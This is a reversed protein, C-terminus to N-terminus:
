SFCLHFVHYQCRSELSILLSNVTGKGINGCVIVVTCDEDILSRCVQCWALLPILGVGEKFPEWGASFFPVAALLWSVFHVVCQQLLAVSPPSFLLGTQKTKELAVLKLNKGLCGTLALALQGDESSLLM